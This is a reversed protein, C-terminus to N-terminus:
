KQENSGKGTQERITHFIYKKWLNRENRKMETGAIEVWKWENGMIEFLKVDNGRTSKYNWHNRYVRKNM